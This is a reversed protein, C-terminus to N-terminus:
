TGLFVEFAVVLVGDSSRDAGAAHALERADPGSGFLSPKAIEDAGEHEFFGISIDYRRLAAGAQPDADTAKTASAIACQRAEADQRRSVYRLVGETGWRNILAQGLGAAATELLM